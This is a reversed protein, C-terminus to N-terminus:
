GVPSMPVMNPVHVMPPCVSVPARSVTVAVAGSCVIVVEIAGESAVEYTPTANLSMNMRTWWAESVMFAEVADPCLVDADLVDSVFAAAGRLPLSPSSANKAGTPQRTKTTLAIAKNHHSM